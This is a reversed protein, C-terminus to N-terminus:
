LNLMKKNKDDCIKQIEKKSLRKSIPVGNYSIVRLVRAKQPRTKNDEYIWQVQMKDQVHPTITKNSVKKWFKEDDIHFTISKSTQWGRGTRKSNPSIVVIDVINHTFDDSIKVILNKFSEKKIPFGGTRNFSLEEVEENNICAKYFNNRAKFAKHFNDPTIGVTELNELSESLFYVVLRALIKEQEEKSLTDTKDSDVGRKKIGDSNLLIKKLKNNLKESWYDPKKGTWGKIAGKGIDSELFKFVNYIGGILSVIIITTLGGKELPAVNLNYKLKGDFFPRNFNDLINKIAEATDIFQKLPIRHQAVKFHYIIEAGTGDDTKKKSM